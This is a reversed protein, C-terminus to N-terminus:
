LGSKYIASALRRVVESATRLATESAPSMARDALESLRESAALLEKYVDLDSLDRFKRM